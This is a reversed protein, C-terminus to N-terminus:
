AGLTTGPRPGFLPKLAGDAVLCAFDFQAFATPDMGRLAISANEDRLSNYIGVFALVKTDAPLAPLQQAARQVGARLARRVNAGDDPASGPAAALLCPASLSRLRQAVWTDEAKIEATKGPTRIGNAVLVIFDILQTVKEPDDPLRHIASSDLQYYGTVQNTFRAWHPSLGGFVSLYSGKDDNKRLDLTVPFAVEVREGPARGATAEAIRAVFADADEIPIPATPPVWIAVPGAGIAALREEAASKRRQTDADAGVDYLPVVAVAIRQEGATLFAVPLDREVRELPAIETRLGREREAWDAVLGAAVQVAQTIPDAM